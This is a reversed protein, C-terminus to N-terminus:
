PTLVDLRDSVALDPHEGGAALYWRGDIVGSALGHRGRELPPALAWAKGGTTLDLVDHEVFVRPSEISEGGIVHVANEIDAASLGGRPTPLPPLTTWHDTDPEYREVAALDRSARGGILLISRDHIVVAAGHERYTPPPALAKDWIGTVPDYRWTPDMLPRGAIVGGLVFLYGRMEVAAHASRREPMPPGASWRNAAPSYIWLNARPALAPGNGGTLFLRGGIATLAAHDRPEPLDALETWGNTKPDFVLFAASQQRNLGFGGAVYLKGDLVAGTVEGLPQPLPPGKTWTGGLLPLSPQVSPEPAASESAVPPPPSSPSAAASPGTVVPSGCSLIALVVIFAWPRRPPRDM